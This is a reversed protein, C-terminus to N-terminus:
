DPSDAASRLIEEAEAILARNVERQYKWTRWTNVALRRVVWAGVAAVLIPTV